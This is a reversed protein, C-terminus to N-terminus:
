QTDDRLLNEKYTITNQEIEHTNTTKRLNDTMALHNAISLSV